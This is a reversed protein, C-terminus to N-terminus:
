LCLLHHLPANVSEISDVLAAHADALVYRHCVAATLLETRACCLAIAEQDDLKSGKCGMAEDEARQAATTGRGLRRRQWLQRRM